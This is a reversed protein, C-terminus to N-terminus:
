PYRRRIESEGADPDWRAVIMLGQDFQYTTLPASLIDVCFVHLPTGPLIRWKERIERVYADEETPVAKGRLKFEGENADPHTLTSHLVCRPDRLLDLAKRSKWIM